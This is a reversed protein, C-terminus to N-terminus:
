TVVQAKCHKTGDHQHYKCPDGDRLDSHVSEDEDRNQLLAYSLDFIFEHNSEVEPTLSQPAAFRAWTDVIARRAPSGRSTNPWILDIIPHIPVRVRQQGPEKIADVIADVIYDQFTTDLIQEGFVYLKALAFFNPEHDHPGEIEDLSVDLVRGTYLWQVYAKFANEDAEPLKLSREGCDKWEKSLAAKLFASSARIVEEHVFFNKECTGVTIIIPEGDISITM